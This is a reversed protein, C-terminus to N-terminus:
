FDVSWECMFDAIERWNASKAMNGRRIHFPMDLATIPAFVNKMRGDCEACVLYRISGALLLFADAFSVM